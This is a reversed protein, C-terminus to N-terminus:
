GCPREAAATPRPHATGWDVLVIDLDGDGDVDGLELDGVSLKEAPLNTTTVDRWRDVGDGLYLRSQTSVINGVVIGPQDDGNVDAVKIVRTTGLRRGLVQRTADNFTGDGRNLLIRNEVPTWYREDGSNAFMLDIDGDGDLDAAEVNNTWEATPGFADRTADLWAGTFTDDEYTSAPSEIASGSPRGPLEDAPDSGDCAALSCLGVALLTTTRATRKSARQNRPRRLGITTM